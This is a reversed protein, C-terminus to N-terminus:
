STLDQGRECIKEFVQSLRDGDTLYLYGILTELSTAQRYIESDVRKPGRPAANRGRRLITQEEATLFPELWQLAEAQREARVWAVVQKHYSEMRKAPLLCWTRMYLEYVADGIYALQGPSLGQIQSPSLAEPLPLPHQM